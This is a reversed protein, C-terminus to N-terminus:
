SGDVITGDEVDIVNDFVGQVEVDHDAVLVTERGLKALIECVRTKAASDMHTTLEDIIVIPIKIGLRNFVMDSLAFPTFAIQVCRRQGGSLQKYGREWLEDDEREWFVLDMGGEEPKIEVSITSDTLRSLYYNARIELDHSISHLVMSPIGKQGFGQEWYRLVLERIRKDRLKTGETEIKAELESLEQAHAEAKARFPNEESQKTQIEELVKNWERVLVERKDKIRELMSLAKRAEELVPELDRIQSDIMQVRPPDAKLQGLDYRLQQVRLELSRAQERKLEIDQEYSELRSEVEEAPLPQLCTPCSASGRVSDRSKVLQEMAQLVSAHEAQASGLAQNQAVIQATPEAQNREARLADIDAQVRDRHAIWKPEEPLHQDIKEVEAKLEQIRANYQELAAARRAEWSASESEYSLGRLTDAKSNLSALALDLKQTEREVEKLETRIRKVVKPCVEVGAVHSLLELRGKNTETVFNSVSGQGLHVVARWLALDMGVLRRLQDGHDITGTDWPKGDCTLDVKSSKGRKRTRHVGYVSNGAQVESRVVCQEVHDNIIEDAKFGSGSGGDQRPTTTEFYCYDIADLLATKGSGMPGRLLVLGQKELDLRIKGPIKCFGEVEVWRPRVVSALPKIREHDVDQLLVKGAELLDEPSVGEPGAHVKAYQAVAEDVTLAQVPEDESAEVPKPLTRVDESQVHELAAEFEESELDEPSAWVEVIDIEEPTLFRDEDEPWHFVYHKPMGPIEHFEPEIKEHTVVAVGHPQDRESIDQEFPSGIYWIRDGIKQRKHFHALYVARVDPPEFRGGMKHGNNAISGKAEAHAFVTAHKPLSAFMSAQAEPDERWPLFAVVGEQHPETCVIWDWEPRDFIKLGHIRGERDVQDHNGPIFVHPIGGWLDFENQVADLQRVRIVGRRDWFDGLCVVGDANIERALERVYGLTAICRDLTDERVHLDGYLVFKFPRPALESRTKKKQNKKKPM